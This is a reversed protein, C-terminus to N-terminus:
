LGAPFKKIQKIGILQELLCQITYINPCRTYLSPTRLVQRQNLHLCYLYVSRWKTLLVRQLNWYSQKFHTERRQCRYKEIVSLNFKNTYLWKESKCGFETAEAFILTINLMGVLIKNVNRIAEGWEMNGAANMRKLCLCCKKEKVRPISLEM